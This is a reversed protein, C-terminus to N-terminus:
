KSQKSQQKKLAELRDLWAEENCEYPLLIGKPDFAWKKEATVPKTYFVPDTLTMEATLVRVGRPDTSQQYRETIHAQDSHPFGQDEQEKLSSTEVVLAQGEWRATSYGNRAPLRDAEAIIKDGFYLRRIESHAEYVITIQEPRQIMEMPYGGSFMMSEPMGSGLCHAGPNDSGPGVLARYQDVKKKGEPTFPLAAGSGPPAFPSKGPEVYWTWIGSLDPRKGAANPAAAHSAASQPAPPPSDAAVSVGVGSGVLTAVLAARHLWSLQSSSMHM